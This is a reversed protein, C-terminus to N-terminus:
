LSARRGVGVFFYSIGLSASALMACSIVSCCPLPSVTSRNVASLLFDLGTSWSLLSAKPFRVLFHSLARIIRINSPIYLVWITFFLSWFRQFTPICNWTLSMPFPNKMMWSRESSSLVLTMAPCGYFSPNRGIVTLDHIGFKETWRSAVFIVVAIHAVM